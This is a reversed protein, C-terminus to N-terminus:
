MKYITEVFENRLIFQKIWMKNDCICVYVTLLM